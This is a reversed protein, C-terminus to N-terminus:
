AGEDVAMDRIYSVDVLLADESAEVEDTKGLAAVLDKEKCYGLRLRFYFSKSFFM